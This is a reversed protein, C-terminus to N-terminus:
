YKCPVFFYLFLRSHHIELKDEYKNTEKTVVPNTLYEEPMKKINVKVM